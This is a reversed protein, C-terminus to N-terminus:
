CCGSKDDFSTPGFFAIDRGDCIRSCSYRGTMLKPNCNLSQRTVYALLATYFLVSEIVFRSALAVEIGRGNLRGVGTLFAVCVVFWMLAILAANVSSPQRDLRLRWSIYILYLLSIGGLETTIAVALTKDSFDWIHAFMSGVFTPIFALLVFVNKYTTSIFPAGSKCSPIVLQILLIMAIGLLFFLAIHNVRARILILAVIISGWVALGTNFSLSSIVGGLIMIGLASRRDDLADVYKVIGYASIILGLHALHDHIAM